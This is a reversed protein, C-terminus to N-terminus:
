PVSCREGLAPTPREFRGPPAVLWALRRVVRRSKQAGASQRLRCAPQGRGCATRGHMGRVEAGVARGHAIRRAGVACGHACAARGHADARGGDRSRAGVPARAARSPAHRGLAPARTRGRARDAPVGPTTDLADAIKTIVSLRPDALGNEIKNLFPRGVGIM